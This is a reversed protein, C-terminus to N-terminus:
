DSLDTNVTLLLDPKTPDSPIFFSFSNEANLM